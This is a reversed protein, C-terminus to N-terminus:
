TKKVFTLRVYYNPDQKLKRQMEVLDPDSFDKSLIRALKEKITYHELDLCLVSKLTDAPIYDSFEYLTELCWYLKFIKKNSEYKGSDSKQAIINRTLDILKPAFYNIFDQNYMLTKVAFIINRCVNSNVDTIAKLFIDCIKPNLFLNKYDLILEAVKFAAAERVKGDQNILNEALILAEATDNLKELKLAAAQRQGINGTKLLNLLEKQPLNSELLELVKNFNEDLTEYYSKNLNQLDKNM